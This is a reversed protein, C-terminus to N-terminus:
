NMRREEARAIGLVVKEALKGVEALNGALLAKYLSFVWQAGFHLGAAFPLM